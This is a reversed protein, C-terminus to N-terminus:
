SQQQWHGERITSTHNTSPIGSGGSCTALRMRSRWARMLVEYFAQSLAERAWKRDGRRGTSVTTVILTALSIIAGVLAVITTITWGGADTAQAQALWLLVPQDHRHAAPLAVTSQSIDDARGIGFRHRRSVGM